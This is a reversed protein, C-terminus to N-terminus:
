PREGPKGEDHHELSTWADILPAAPGGPSEATTPVKAEQAAEPLGHVELELYENTSFPGVVSEVLARVAEVSEGQWICIGTSRDPTAAYIPLQVHAPLGLKLAKDEAAEFGAPDSIHHIVGVYM